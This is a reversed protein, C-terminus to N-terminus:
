FSARVTLQVQRPAGPSINNDGNATPYYGTDFLNDVNVALRYRVARYYVAADARAFSPLTVQNTFSTFVRSQAVVGGGASWKSTIDYTSWLAAQHTPVLGVQRGAPASSTDRTVRASSAAYGGTIKWHTTLNGAGSVVLGNTRQQGTLVLRTPDNPDTNKVNNRDLRFIAATLLVRGGALDFKAGAEYNKANEPEVEATNRALGLTQASPLFTYSYCAYLSVPKTPQYIVGARPSVNVDTRSLDSAGPLHDDVRASFRDIRAGAVAKWRSTFAIQDQVYAALVTADAHRDVTVPAAAFNADRESDTVPVNPIAAAQHRREDQYQHGAEVGALVVHDARLLRHSYVLDTQNFTNVRNIDHNYASLSLTGAGNVASGPYVNQYSKDYAGSSFNNRLVLNPGLRYDLSARVSDVGSHAENQDRSGFLQSVPVDVPRGNQSPIGRDALRRDDLHEAGVTLSARSGLTVGFMPNFGYRHLYFGDRFGGSDEGMSAMRFAGSAGVPLTFRVTGRKHGLAGLELAAESPAGRTPRITVLNVVGGAGGRGFLVAAPGQVVDMSEVNYLDRFREQDDRVGNVFFDSATSIGRIVLQDRNGEGQAVTVGPVNRVADAVSQARQDRLLEIPIVNVTQPIDRLPTVTKTAAASDIPRYTSATEDVSMRLTAAAIHLEFGHPTPKVTLGTGETLRGLADAPTFTGIAGPSRLTHADIQDVVVVHVGTTAEFAALAQTLPGASIDFRLANEQAAAIPPFATLALTVLVRGFYDSM